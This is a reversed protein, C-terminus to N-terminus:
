GIKVYARSQLGAITLNLKISHTFAINHKTSPVISMILLILLPINVTFLTGRILRVLTTIIKSMVKPKTINYNLGALLTHEFNDTDWEGVVNNDFSISQNKGDRFVVGRNLETTAIDSNPFAYVSRLLLDNYGYNLRQSFRWVDNINSELM